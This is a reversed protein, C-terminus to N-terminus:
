HQAVEVGKGRVGGLMGQGEVAAILFLPCVAQAASQEWRLDM